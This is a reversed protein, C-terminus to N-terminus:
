AASGQLPPEAKTSFHRETPRDNEDEPCLILLSRTQTQGPNGWQHPLHAEFILSDGQELTYSQEEITYELRGELCYVFEYGTHVIPAPGSDAGPLLTVLLPQGGHLTLGAGLDEAIGHAFAARPRQGAKQYVVAQASDDVEFFASIPVHLARAVQQLTSVSPSTRGNEILSLTNVNLGSLDALRRLSHGHEMRLVRLRQGVDVEFGADPAPAPFVGRGRRQRARRPHQPEASPRSPRRGVAKTPDDM